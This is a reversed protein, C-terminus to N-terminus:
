RHGEPSAAAPMPHFPAAEHSYSFFSAVGIVLILALLGWRVLEAGSLVRSDPEM